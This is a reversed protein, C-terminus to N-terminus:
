MENRICCHGFQTALRSNFLHVFNDFRHRFTFMLHIYQQFAKLPGPIFQWFLFISRFVITIIVLRRVCFWDLRHGLLRLHHTFVIQLLAVTVKGFEAVSAFEIQRTVGIQIFQLSVHSASTHFMTYRLRRGECVGFLDSFQNCNLHFDLFTSKLSRRHASWKLYILFSFRFLGTKIRIFERM